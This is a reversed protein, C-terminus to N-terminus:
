NGAYFTAESPLGIQTCPSHLGATVNVAKDGHINNEQGPCRPMALEQFLYSGDQCLFSPGAAPSLLQEELVWQLLSALPRAPFCHLARIFGASCLAVELWVADGPPPFSIRRWEGEDKPHFTLIHAKITEKTQPNNKEKELLCQLPFSTKKKWWCSYLLCVHQISNTLVGLVALVYINGYYCRDCLRPQMPHEWPNDTAPFSRPRQPLPALTTPPAPSGAFTASVSIDARTQLAPFAAALPFTLQCQTPLACSPWPPVPCAARPEWQAETGQLLLLHAKQQGQARSPHSSPLPCLRSRLSLTLCAGPPNKLSLRFGKFSGDPPVPLMVRCKVSCLM